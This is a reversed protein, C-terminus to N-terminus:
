KERTGGPRSSQQERDCSTLGLSECEKAVLQDTGSRLSVSLTKELVSDSSTQLNSTVVGGAGARIWELSLRELESSKSPVLVSGGFGLVSGVMLGAVVQRTRGFSM